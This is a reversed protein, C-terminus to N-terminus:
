VMWYCIGPMHTPLPQCRPGWARAGFTGQVPMSPGNLSLTLDQIRTRYGRGARRDLSGSGWRPSPKTPAPLGPLQMIEEPAM